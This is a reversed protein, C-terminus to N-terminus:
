GTPIGEKQLIDKEIKRVKGKNSEFAMRIGPDAEQTPTGYEVFVAHWSGKSTNEDVGIEVFFYNGDHQVDSVAVGEM